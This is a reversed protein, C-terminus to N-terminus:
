ATSGEPVRNQVATEVSITLEVEPPGPIFDIKKVNGVPVGQLSVVSGKNLGVAQPLRVKLHYSKTLFYRDGGLLFSPICFLVVGVVTFIGVKIDNSVKSGSM